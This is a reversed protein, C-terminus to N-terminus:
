EEDEEEIEDNDDENAYKKSNKSIESIALQLSDIIAWLSEETADNFFITVEDGLRLVCTDGADRSLQRIWTHSTKPVGDIFVSSYVKIM